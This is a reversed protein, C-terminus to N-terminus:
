VIGFLKMLVALTGLTVTTLAWRVPQLQLV